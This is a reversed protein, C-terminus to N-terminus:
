DIAILFPTFGVGIRRSGVSAVSTLPSAANGAPLANISFAAGVNQAVRKLSSSGPAVSMYWRVATVGAPLPTIATVDIQKSAVITVDTTPSLVTEGDADVYSYGVTYTGAALVGAGASQALTPGTVPADSTTVDQTLTGDQGLFVDKGPQVGVFGAIVTTHVIGVGKRIPAPAAIFFGLYGENNTGDTPEVLSAGSEHFGTTSISVPGADDLAVKAVAPKQLFDHVPRVRKNDPITIPM